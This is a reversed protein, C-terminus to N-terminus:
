PCCNCGLAKLAAQRDMDTVAGLPEGMVTGEYGPRPASYLENGFAVDDYQDPLQMIHGGEHAALWPDEGTYWKGKNGQMFSRGGGSILTIKTAFMGGISTTVNFGPASWRQELSSRLSATAADTAGEGGFKFNIKIEAGSGTCKCTARLGLPDIRNIPNGGSM